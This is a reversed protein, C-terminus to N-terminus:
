DNLSRSLRSSRTLPPASFFDDVKIKGENKPLTQVEQGLHVQFDSNESNLAESMFSSFNRSVGHFKNM